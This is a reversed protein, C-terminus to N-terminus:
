HTADDNHPATAQASTFHDRVNSPLTQLWADAAEPQQKKWADIQLRLGNSWEARNPDGPQWGSSIQSYAQRKVTESIFDVKGHETAWKAAEGPERWVWTAYANFQAEPTANMEPSMLVELRDEPRDDMMTRLVESRFGELQEPLLGSEDLEEVALLAAGRDGDLYHWMLQNLSQRKINPDDVSALMEFYKRRSEKSGAMQEGLVSLVGRLIDRSEGKARALANEPDQKAMMQGATGEIFSKLRDDDNAKAWRLAGEMDREIWASAVILKTERGDEYPPQRAATMAAEPDVQAWRFFLMNVLGYNVPRKLGDPIEALFAQVDEASFGRVIEWCQQMERPTPQSRGARHRLEHLKAFSDKRSKPAMVQRVVSRFTTAPKGAADM